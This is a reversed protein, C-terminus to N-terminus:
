GQFGPSNTEVPELTLIEIEYSSRVPCFTLIHLHQPSIAERTLLASTDSSHPGGMQLKRGCFGVLHTIFALAHVLITPTYDNEGTDHPTSICGGTPLNISAVWFYRPKLCTM